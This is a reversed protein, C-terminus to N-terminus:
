DADAGILHFNVVFVGGGEPEFTAEGRVNKFDGTGGVIARSVEPTEEGALIIKGRDGINYEQTVMDRTGGAFFFGWCQFDGLEKGSNVDEVRGGVHFPGGNSLTPIKDFTGAFDVRVRVSLVNDNKNNPRAGYALSGIGVVLMCATTLLVARSTMSIKRM